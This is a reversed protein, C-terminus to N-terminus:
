DSDKKRYNNYAIRGTRMFKREVPFVIETDNYSLEVTDRGFYTVYLLNIIAGSHIQVMRNDLKKSIQKISQYCMYSKQKTHLEIKRGVREIYVIQERPIFIKNGGSIIEIANREFATSINEKAKSM